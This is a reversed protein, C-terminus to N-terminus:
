STQRLLVNKQLSSGEHKEEHIKTQFNQNQLFRKSKVIKAYSKIDQKPFLEAPVGKPSVSEPKVVYEAPVGASLEPSSSPEREYRINTIYM